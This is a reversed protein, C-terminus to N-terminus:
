RQWRQEQSVAPRAQSCSATVVRRTRWGRVSLLAVTASCPHGRLGAPRAAPRAPMTQM